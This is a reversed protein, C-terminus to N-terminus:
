LPSVLQSKTTSASQNGTVIVKSGKRHPIIEITVSADGQKSEEPIDLVFKNGRSGLPYAAKNQKFSAIIAETPYSSTIEQRFSYSPQSLMRELERFSSAQTSDGKWKLFDVREYPTFTIHYSNGVPKATAKVRYAHPAWRNKTYQIDGRSRDVTVDFSHAGTSVMDTTREPIYFDLGFAVDNKDVANAPVIFTKSYDEVPTAVETRQIIGLPDKTTPATVQCGALISLLLLSPLRFHKNM